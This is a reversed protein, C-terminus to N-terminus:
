DVKKQAIRAGGHASIGGVGGGVVAGIISGVLLGKLGVLAGVLAGSGMGSLTIKTKNVSNKKKAAKQLEDFTEKGTKDVM